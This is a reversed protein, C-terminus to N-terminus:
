CDFQSGAPKRGKTNLSEGIRKLIAERNECMAPARSERAVLREPGREVPTVTEQHWLVLDASLHRDVNLPLKVNLAIRCIHHM